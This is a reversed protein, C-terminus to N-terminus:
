NIVDKSVAGRHDDICFCSLTKKGYMRLPYLCFRDELTRLKSLICIFRVSSLMEQRKICADSLIRLFSVVECLQGM